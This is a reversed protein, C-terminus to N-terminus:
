LVFLMKVKNTIETNAYETFKAKVSKASKM